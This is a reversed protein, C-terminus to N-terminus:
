SILHIITIFYFIETKSLFVWFSKWTLNWQLQCMHQTKSLSHKCECSITRIVQWKLCSIGKRRQTHLHLSMNWQTERKNWQTEHKVTNWTSGVFLHLRTHRTGNALKEQGTSISGERCYSDLQCNRSCDASGTQIYLVELCRRYPALM